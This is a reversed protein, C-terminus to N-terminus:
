EQFITLKEMQQYDLCISGQRFSTQHSTRLGEQRIHAHVSIRDVRRNFTM